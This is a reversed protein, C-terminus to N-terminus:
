AVMTSKYLGNETGAYITTSNVPDIALPRVDLSGLGTNIERWDACIGFGGLVICQAVMLGLARKLYGKLNRM